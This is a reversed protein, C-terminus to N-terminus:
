TSQKSLLSQIIFQIHQQLATKSHAIGNTAAHTSLLASYPPRVCHESHVPKGSATVDIHYTHATSLSLTDAILQALEARSMVVDGCYHLMKPTDNHTILEIIHNALAGAYTPTGVNNEYVEVTQLDLLKNIVAPVFNRGHESFVWSTRVVTTADCLSLALMEGALKSKGYVNSPNPADTYVYPQDTNGSFVYDTSIHILRSGVKQAAQALNAVGRANVAFALGQEHEAQDVNTYAATNVIIQPQFGQVMADVTKSNTIDLTKSDTFIVEWDEPVRERLSQGLQGRAGTILVRM